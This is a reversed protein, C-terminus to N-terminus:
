CSVTAFPIHLRQLTATGEVTSLYSLELIYQMVFDFGCSLTESIPCRLFFNMVSLLALCFIIKLPNRSVSSM